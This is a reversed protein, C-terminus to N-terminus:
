VCQAFLGPRFGATELYSRPWAWDVAYSSGVFGFGNRVNSLTGPEILLEPDFDFPFPPAWSEDAVHTRFTIEHVEFPPPRPPTDPNGDHDVPLRFLMEERITTPAADLDIPVRWGYEVPAFATQEDFSVFLVDCRRFRDPDTHPDPDDELFFIKFISTAGYLRPADLLLLDASAASGPEPSFSLTVAPPAAARAYATEGNPGEARVEYEDRYAPRFDSVFLLGQSGDDYTVISDRWTQEEGTDRNVSRFTIGSFDPEADIRETIPVVRIVQHDSTPDLNGWLSYPPGDPAIPVFGEDCSALFALAVLFVLGPVFRRMM